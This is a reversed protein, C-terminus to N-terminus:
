ALAFFLPSFSSCRIFASTRISLTLVLISQSHLCANSPQQSRFPSFLDLHLCSTVFVPPRRSSFAL